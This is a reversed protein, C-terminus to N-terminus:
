RRRSRGIVRLSWGVAIPFPEADQIRFKFERWIGIEEVRLSFSRKGNTVKEDIMLKRDGLDCGKEFLISALDHLGQNLPFNNPVSSADV